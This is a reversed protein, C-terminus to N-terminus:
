PSTGLFFVRFTWPNQTPDDELDIVRTVLDEATEVIGTAERRDGAADVEYVPLDIGSAKAFPEGIPTKDLGKVYGSDNHNSDSGSGTNKNENELSMDTEGAAYKSRKTAM